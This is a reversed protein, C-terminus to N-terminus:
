NIKKINKSQKREVVKSKPKKKVKLDKLIYSGGLPQKRTKKILDSAVMLTEQLSADGELEIKDSNSVEEEKEDKKDDKKKDEKLSFLTREDKNKNFEKIDERVEDFSSSKKVRNM